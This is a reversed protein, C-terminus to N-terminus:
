GTVVSWVIATLGALAVVIALATLALALAGTRRSARAVSPMAPAATRTASPGDPLRAPAPASPVPRPEYPLVAGAGAGDAARESPPVDDPLTIRTRRARGRRPEPGPDPDGTRPVGDPIVITGDAEADAEVAADPATDRPVVITADADVVVTEGIEDEEHTSV